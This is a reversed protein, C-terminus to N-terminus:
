IGINLQILCLKSFYTSERIFETDVAIFKENEFVKLTNELKETSNIFEHM